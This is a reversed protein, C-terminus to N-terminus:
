YQGRFHDGKHNRRRMYLEHFPVGGAGSPRHQEWEEGLARRVDRLGAPRLGAVCGAVAGAVISWVTLSQLAVSVAIAALAAMVARSAHFWPRRPRDWPNYVPANSGDLFPDPVDLIAPDAQM